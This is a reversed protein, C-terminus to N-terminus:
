IIDHHLGVILFSASGPIVNEVEQLLSELPKHLALTRQIHEAGLECLADRMSVWVKEALETEMNYDELAIVHYVPRVFAIQLRVPHMSGRLLNEMMPQTSKLLSLWEDLNLHKGCHIM